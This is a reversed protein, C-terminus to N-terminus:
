RSAFPSPCEGALKFVAEANTDLLQQVAAIRQQQRQEEPASPPEGAEWDMAPVAHDASPMRLFTVNCCDISGGLSRPALCEEANGHPTHYARLACRSPSFQAICATPKHDPCCRWRGCWRSQLLGTHQEITESFSCLAASRKWRGGSTPTLLYVGDMMACCAATHVCTPARTPPPPLWCHCRCTAASGRRCFRPLRAAKMVQRYITSKYAPTGSVGGAQRGRCSCGGVATVCQVAAQSVWAAGWCCCCCCGPVAALAPDSCSGSRTTTRLV